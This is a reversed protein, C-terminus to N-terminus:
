RPNAMNIGLMDLPYRICHVYLVLLGHITLATYHVTYPMYNTHYWCGKYEDAFVTLLFCMLLPLVWGMVYYLVPARTSPSHENADEARLLDVSALAVWVRNSIICGFIAYVHFNHLMNRPAGTSKPPSLAAFDGFNGCFLSAFPFVMQNV